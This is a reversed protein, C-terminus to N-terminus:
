YCLVNSHLIEVNVPQLPPREYLLRNHDDGTYKKIPYTPENEPDADIGWGNIQRYDYDNNKM